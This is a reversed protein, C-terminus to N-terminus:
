IHFQYILCFGAAIAAIQLFLVILGNKFSQPVWKFAFFVIVPLQWVLLIEFIGSVIEEGQRREGRTMLNHFLLIIMALLSMIIPVFASPRKILEGFNM